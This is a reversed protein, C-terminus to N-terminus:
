CNEYKTNVWNEKMRDQIQETQNSCFCFLSIVFSHVGDRLRVVIKRKTSILYHDLALIELCIM